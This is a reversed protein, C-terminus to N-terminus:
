VERNTPLTLHTYSVAEPLKFATYDVTPMAIATEKKDFSWFEFDAIPRKYATLDLKVKGRGGKTGYRVGDNNFRFSLGASIQPAGPTYEVRNGAFITEVMGCGILLKGIPPPTGAVGSGVIETKFKMKVYSTAPLQESVGFYPNVLDRDENIWVTEFTPEETLLICDSAAFTTQEIGYTAELAAQLVLNDSYRFDSM